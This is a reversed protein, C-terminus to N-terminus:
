TLPLELGYIAGSETGVYVFDNIVDYSPTGVSATGDGLQIWTVGSPGLSVDIQYLRGDSSGVTELDV